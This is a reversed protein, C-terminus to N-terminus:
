ATQKILLGQLKDLAHSLQLMEESPFQKIVEKTKSDIVKVITSGSQDDISFQLDKATTQLFNQVKSVASEVDERRPPSANAPQKALSEKPNENKQANAPRASTQPAHVKPTIEPPATSNLSSSISPITM